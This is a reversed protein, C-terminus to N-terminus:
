NFFLRTSLHELVVTSLSLHHKNKSALLMDM